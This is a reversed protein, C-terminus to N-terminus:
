ELGRFKRYQSVEWGPATPDAPHPHSPVRMPLRRVHVNAIALAEQLLFWRHREIRRVYAAQEHSPKDVYSNKRLASNFKFVTLEGSSVFRYGAQWARYVFDTDPNRWITRYDRWGGLATSVAASHMLGSPPLGHIGDYGLKGYVGTVVRYNSAKPGIMEVQSFAVDAGAQTMAARLTQLHDPRWIDDHGLYAVHSGRALALGANNPASQNGSNAPLNHWRLRVDGFAKVVLESDDTCNDGVVVVEFDPETQWLVSCIAFHLVSSWNYTPIIVSVAPPSSSARDRLIRVRPAPRAMYAVGRRLLARIQASSLYTM